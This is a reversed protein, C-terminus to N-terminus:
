NSKLYQGTSLKSKPSLSFDLYYNDGTEKTSITLVPHESFDSLSFKKIQCYFYKGKEQSSDERLVGEDKIDYTIIANNQRVIKIQQTQVSLDKIPNSLDEIIKSHLFIYESRSYLINDAKSFIKEFNLIITVSLGIIISSILMVIVLEPITYAKIKTM